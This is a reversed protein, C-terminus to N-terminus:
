TKIRGHPVHVPKGTVRQVARKCAEPDANHSSLHLLWIGQVRSLDNSRLFELCTDLSMHTCLLRERIVEPVIGAEINKELIEEQYNCEILIHTLGNFSYRVYATDTCFLLREDKNQLTFGLPECADHRTDFPMVQWSGVQFPTKAKIIHLRHAGGLGLAEASGASMYLDKGSQLILDKAARSHDGHEHTLLCAKIESLRYNLARKIKALPLGAELLLPTTGDTVRYCNGASSSAIVQVDIM